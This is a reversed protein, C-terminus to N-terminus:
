QFKAYRVLLSPVAGDWTDDLPKLFIADLRSLASAPSLYDLRAQM